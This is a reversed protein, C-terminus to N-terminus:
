EDIKRIRSLSEGIIGFDMEVARQAVLSKRYASFDMEHVFEHLEEAAELIDFLNKRIEDNM